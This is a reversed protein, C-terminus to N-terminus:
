KLARALRPSSRREWKGPSIRLSLPPLFFPEAWVWARAKLILAECQPPRPVAVTELPPWAELRM